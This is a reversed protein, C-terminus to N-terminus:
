KKILMFPHNNIRLQYLGLSENSLDINLVHNDLRWNSIVRGNFDILQVFEESLNDGTIQYHNNELTLLKLSFKEFENLGVTTIQISEQKQDINCNSIADLSVTFNGNVAFTHIPNEITSSSGDGFDWNYSQAKWSSNTCTLQEANQTVNFDAITHNQPSRLHWLDLSDMVATEAALQLQEASTQPLTGYFTAGVPSKRFISGYFTCAALYSGEPSPHSGDGAYLNINPYNERVYKWAMGVPSVSAQVSDAIRQYGNRIRSQMGGYTSIPQWQSDGNIYGWTMFLMLDTCFKASYVSDSIQKVYPLSGSNVQSDSFSVEQSQGQLVVYDWPKSNIKAYTAANTSHGNFTAGGATQSDFTLKDGKSVTLSNLLSPLDNVYTYSNGIFLVSVSDQALTIQSVTVFLISFFFRNM